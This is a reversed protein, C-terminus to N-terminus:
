NSFIDIICPFWIMQIFNMLTIFVILYKLMSFQICFLCFLFFKLNSGKGGCKVSVNDGIHFFLYVSSFFFKYEGSNFHTISGIFYLFPYDFQVLVSIFCFIFAVVSMFLVCSIMIFIWLYMIQIFMLFIIDLISFLFLFDTMLTMRMIEMMIMMVMM